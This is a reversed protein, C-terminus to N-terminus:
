NKSYAVNRQSEMKSQKHVYKQRITKQAEGNNQGHQKCETTDTEKHQNKCNMRMHKMQSQNRVQM